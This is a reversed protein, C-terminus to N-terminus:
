FKLALQERHNLYYSTLEKVRADKRQAAAKLQRDAYGKARRTYDYDNWAKQSDQVAEVYQKLFDAGIAM